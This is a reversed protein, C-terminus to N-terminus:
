EEPRADPESTYDPYLRQLCDACFSHSFEAESHSRIYEEVQLWAGADTRIRKCGACIPLIGRLVKIERLSEQQALFAAQERAEATRRKRSYYVMIWITGTVVIRNTLLIWPPLHSPPSLVAGGIICASSIIGAWVLQRSTCVASVIWLLLVHLMWEVSELPTYSDIVLLILSAVAYLAFWKRSKSLSFAAPSRAEVSNPIQM